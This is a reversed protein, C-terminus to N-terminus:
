HTQQTLQWGSLLLKGKRFKCVRTPNIFIGGDGCEVNWMGCEAFVFVVSVFVFVFQLGRGLLQMVAFCLVVDRLNWRVYMLSLPLTPPNNSWTNAPHPYAHSMLNLHVDVDHM